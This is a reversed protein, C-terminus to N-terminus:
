AAKKKLNPQEIAKAILKGRTGLEVADWHIPRKFNNIWEWNVTGNGYAHEYVDYGKSAVLEALKKHDIGNGYPRNIQVADKGNIQIHNLWCRAKYAEENGVFAVAVGRCETLIAPLVNAYAGAYGGGGGKPGLCTMFHNGLGGRLIDIPNCSITIEGPLVEVKKQGARAMMTIYDQNNKFMSSIWKGFSPLRANKNKFVIYQKALKRLDDAGPGENGLFQKCIDELAPPESEEVAGGPRHCLALMVEDRLLIKNLAVEYKAVNPYRKKVEEWDIPERGTLDRNVNPYM